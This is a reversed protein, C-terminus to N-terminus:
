AKSLKGIGIYLCDNLLNKDRIHTNDKFLVINCMGGGVRTRPGPVLSSSRAGGSPHSRRPM